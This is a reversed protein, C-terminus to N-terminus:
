FWRSEKDFIKSVRDFINTEKNQRIKILMSMCQCLHEISEQSRFTVAQVQKRKYKRLLREAENNTAPVRYDHLFLLHNSRYKEMRLYLNYGEKYYESPPIYEYEEKAKQLIEKYRREFESIKTTSCETEPPLSNRYHIMERVLSHMKKNWTRNSENEISDKLYRLIHALCEQHDTGYKYFTSEHDHILIGQYDEVPTGKVGKHGKNERAFYMAKGDPTACLFVYASKGNVKGNTNDTHMVPSLLMDAFLAKREQETKKAFEKCLKNIMGKSINLKGETLDSLFKRSKDISTCCDNNLLFLFAKISGDYNVDNVVGTPFAAHIREGTKANYYVDAHYETVDLVLRIGIHQKVITKSTKKFDPDELVEQPPTLLIPETTPTQKKRGHGKHGPQGGPKRGTKERSNSIKKPKRSKSSPLSSNEYDRNIQATLKLNKGIEEELKTKVEYNELRQEKIKNQALELQREAKLARKEMQKNLMKSINLKREQEKEYDEFVEFWQNRVTIIEKHAISLEEELRKIKGELFRLEKQYEAKITVYKEGSEFAMVKANAAKLRYQLNTIIDFSHNM